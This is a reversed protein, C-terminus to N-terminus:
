QWTAWAGPPTQGHMQRCSRAWQLNVASQIARAEQQTMGTPHMAGTTASRNASSNAANSFTGRATEGATTPRVPQYTPHHHHLSQSAKRSWKREPRLLPTGLLSLAAPVQHLAET